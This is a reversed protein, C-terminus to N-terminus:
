TGLCVQLEDLNNVGKKEKWTSTTVEMEAVLPVYLDPADEMIKKFEFFIAPNDEAHYEWSLEDHIQM